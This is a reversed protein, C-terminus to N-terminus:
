KIKHKKNELQKKSERQNREKIERKIYKASIHDTHLISGKEYKLGQEYSYYVRRIGYYKILEVCHRCPASNNMTRRVVLLRTKRLYRRVQELKTRSKQRGTHARYFENYVSYFLGLRRTITSM